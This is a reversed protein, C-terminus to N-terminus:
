PRATSIDGIFFLSIILLAVVVVLYTTRFVQSLSPSSQTMSKDTIALQSRIGRVAWTIGTAISAFLPAWVLCVFLLVILFM